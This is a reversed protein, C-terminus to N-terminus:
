VLASQDRKFSCVADTNCVQPSVFFRERHQLRQTVLVRLLQRLVTPMLAQLTHQVCRGLMRVMAAQTKKGIGDGAHASERDRWQNRRETVTQVFGHNVRCVARPYWQQGLM